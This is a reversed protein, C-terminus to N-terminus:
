DLVQRGYITNLESGFIADIMGFLDVYRSIGKTMAETGTQASRTNPKRKSPATQPDGFCGRRDSSSEREYSM